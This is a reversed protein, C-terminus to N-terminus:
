PRTGASALRLTLRTGHVEVLGARGSYDVFELREGAASTLKIEPDLHAKLNALAHTAAAADPYDVLLLTHAPEGDSGLYEALVGTVGGKQELIDADGLTILSSLGVPGRIVRESGAIRGAAPLGDFLGLPTAMPLRGAVARAVEIMARALEPTGPENDLSFYYPGHVLQLQHEGATHRDALGPAPTEQGCRSLYIGMAAPGDRMRYLEAGIVEQGKRLKAVALEEFGLELFIEAGGDIHGYLEAGRFLRV